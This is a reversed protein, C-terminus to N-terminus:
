NIQKKNLSVIVYILKYYKIKEPKFRRWFYAHRYCNFHNEFNIIICVHTDMVAYASKFCIRGYKNM